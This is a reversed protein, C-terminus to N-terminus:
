PTKTCAALIEEASVVSTFAATKKRAKNYIYIAPVESYGFWSDFKYETDKCMFLNQMGTFYKKRFAEIDELEAWSVYVMTSNSFKAAKDRIKTAQTICKECFPDFYCVIIPKNAPLRAPTINEKKTSTFSFDPLAQSQADLSLSVIIAILPFLKM